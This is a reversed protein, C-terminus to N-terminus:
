DTNEEDEIEFRIVVREGDCCFVEISEIEGNDNRNVIVSSEGSHIEKYEATSIFDNMDGTNESSHTHIVRSSSSSNPDNAKPLVFFDKFNRILYEQTSQEPNEESLNNTEQTDNNLYEEYKPYDKQADKSKIIKSSIKSSKEKSIDKTLEIFEEPTILNEIKLHEEEGDDPKQQNKDEM